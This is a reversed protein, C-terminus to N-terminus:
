PPVYYDLGLITHLFLPIYSNKPGDHTRIVIAELLVQVYQSGTQGNQQLFTLIVCSYRTRCIVLLRPGSQHGFERGFVVGVNERGRRGCHHRASGPYFVSTSGRPARVISVGGM